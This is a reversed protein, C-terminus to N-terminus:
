RGLKNPANMQECREVCDPNDSCQMSCDMTRGRRKECKPDRECRMPDTQAASVMSKCGGGGLALVLGAGVLCAGVTTKKM